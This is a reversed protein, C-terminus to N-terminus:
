AIEMQKLLEDVVQPVVTVTGETEPCVPFQVSFKFVLVDADVCRAIFARTASVVEVVAAM